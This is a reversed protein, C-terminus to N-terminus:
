LGIAYRIGLVGRSPDDCSGCRGEGHGLFHSTRDTLSEYIRAHDLGGLVLGYGCKVGLSSDPLQGGFTQGNQGSEAVPVPDVGAM